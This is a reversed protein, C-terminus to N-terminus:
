YQVAPIYSSLIEYKVIMSYSQSGAEIIYYKLVNIPNPYFFLQENIYIKCFENSYIQLSEEDDNM